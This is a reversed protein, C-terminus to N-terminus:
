HTHLTWRLTGDERLFFNLFGVDGIMLRQNEYWQKWGTAEPVNLFPFPQHIDNDLSSLSCLYGQTGHPEYEMWPCVGGIKTAQFIPPIHRAIEPYAFGDVQPYDWSRHIAGYCPLIKLRTEPIDQSAILPHSTLSVWEFMLFSDEEDEGLLDYFMNGDFEYPHPETFILLIEGPLEPVIDHSDAFCFQAVFTLPVGSPVVPWPTGATRYPLGGIKTVAREDPEGRYWVFVDTPVREIGPLLAYSAERLQELVAIDYPGSIVNATPAKGGAEARLRPVSFLSKWTAIDLRQHLM